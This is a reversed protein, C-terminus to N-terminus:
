LPRIHGSGLERLYVPLVASIGLANLAVIAFLPLMLCRDLGGLADAEDKSFPEVIM